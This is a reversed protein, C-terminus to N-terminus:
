GFCGVSFTIVVLDPVKRPESCFSSVQDTLGTSVFSQFVTRNKQLLQGEPIKTTIGNLFTVASSNRFGALRRVGSETWQHCSWTCSRQFNLWYKEKTSDCTFTELSQFVQWRKTKVHISFDSTFGISFLSFNQFGDYLLLRKQQGIRHSKSDHSYGSKQVIKSHRSLRSGTKCRSAAVTKKGKLKTVSKRPPSLISFNKIIAAYVVSKSKM